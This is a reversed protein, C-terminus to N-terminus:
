GRRGTIKEQADDQRPRAAPAMPRNMREKIRDRLQMFPTTETIERLDQILRTHEVMVRTHEALQLEAGCRRVRELNFCRICNGAKKFTQCNLCQKEGIELRPKKKTKM